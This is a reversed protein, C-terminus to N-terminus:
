TKIWRIGTMGNHILLRLALARERAQSPSNVTLVIVAQECDTVQLFSKTDTLHLECRFRGDRWLVERTEM